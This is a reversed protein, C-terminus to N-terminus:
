KIEMLLLIEETLISTLNVNMNYNKIKKTLRKLSKLHADLKEIQEKM